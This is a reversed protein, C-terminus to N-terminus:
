LTPETLSWIQEATLGSCDYGVLTGNEHLVFFRCSLGGTDKAIMRAEIVALSMDAARFTPKYFNAQYAEPVTDAWPIEYLRVDYSAPASIDM